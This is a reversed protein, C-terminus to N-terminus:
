IVYPKAARRDSKPDPSFRKSRRAIKKKKINIDLNLYRQSQMDLTIAYRKGFRLTFYIFKICTNQYNTKLQRGDIDSRSKM